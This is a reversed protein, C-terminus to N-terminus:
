GIMYCQCLKQIGSVSQNAIVLYSRDANLESNYFGSSKVLMVSISFAILLSLFLGIMMEFSMQVRM